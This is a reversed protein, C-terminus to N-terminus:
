CWRPAAGHFMRRHTYGGLWSALGFAALAIAVLQAPRDNAVAAVAVALRVSRDRRRDRRDGAHGMKRLTRGLADEMRSTM